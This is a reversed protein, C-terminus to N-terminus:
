RSAAWRRLPDTGALFDDRPPSYFEVAVMDELVQGGHSANPPIFVLEGPGLELEQEEVALRIRGALVLVAQEYPHSHHLNPPVAGVKVEYRALSMNTGFALRRTIGETLREAPLAALSVKEVAM